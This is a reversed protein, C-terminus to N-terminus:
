INNNNYEIIERTFYTKLNKMKFQILIGLKGFYTNMKM